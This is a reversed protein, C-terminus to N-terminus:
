LICILKYNQGYCNANVFKRRTTTRVCRIASLGALSITKMFLFMLQCWLILHPRHGMFGVSIMNRSCQHCVLSSPWVIESRTFSSNIQELSSDGIIMMHQHYDKQINIDLHGTIMTHQHYNRSAGKHQQQRQQDISTCSSMDSNTLCSGWTMTRLFATTFLNVKRLM